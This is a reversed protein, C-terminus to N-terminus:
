KSWRFALAAVVAAFLSLGALSDDVLLGISLGALGACLAQVAVRQRGREQLVLEIARV